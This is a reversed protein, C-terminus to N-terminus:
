SVRQLKPFTYTLALVNKNNGGSQDGLILCCCVCCVSCVFRYIVLPPYLECCFDRCQSPSPLLSQAILLLLWGALMVEKMVVMNTEREEGEGEVGM